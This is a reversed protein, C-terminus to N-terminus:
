LRTMRDVLIRECAKFLLYAALAGILTALLGLLQRAAGEMLAVTGHAAIFDLNASLLRFVEVTQLSFAAFAAGMIVFTLAPHFHLLRAIAEFM